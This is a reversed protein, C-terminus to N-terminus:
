RIVNADIGTTAVPLEADCTGPWSWTRSSPFSSCCPCSGMRSSTLWCARSPWDRGDVEPMTTSQMARKQGNCSSFTSYASAAIALFGRRVPQIGLMPAIRGISQMDAKSPSLWNWRKKLRAGTLFVSRRDVDSRVGRRLGTCGIISRGSLRVFLSPAIGSAHHFQIKCSSGVLDFLDASAVARAWDSGNSGIIEEPSDPSITGLLRTRAAHATTERRQASNLGDNMAAEPTQFAGPTLAAGDCSFKM